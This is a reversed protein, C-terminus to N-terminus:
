AFVASSKLYDNIEAMAADLGKCLVARYGQDGLATLWELQEKSPRGKLTKYELCLGHFGHRPYLMMLDPVGKKLGEAKMRAGQRPSTNAGNPVAFTLAYAAPHQLKLWRMLTTQEKHELDKM